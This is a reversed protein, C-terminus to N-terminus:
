KIDLVIKSYTAQQEYQYALNLLNCEDFAKGILQMGIPLGKSDFGCNLSIAPVGAINIPVTCIDTLYMEVPNSAKEGLKFATTPGTPTLLADYTQFLTDFENKILTRVQQAKKYYADYYGSSLAYTGLMIRRKVEPGFGEDRSRKYLELLTSYEKARYGYKIGDYRALNSSAEASSILYYAPLSLDSLDFSVYDVIAGQREYEKAAELVARKVDENIGEGFFEKPLGIRKGKIEKHLDRTYDEHGVPASTSDMPDHGGIINMTHAVDEVYNGIPGIQDLSSAFAVLGYRSVRGYTPKLGVVGCYSAPQRISGGTDSGLAIPSMKAAVCAASGGSSGGPVYELNWPNKTKQFASNETSSGMAFEDMNLKGLMVMDHQKIKTIVTADYPPIFHELMKSACSTTVGQTCINDKISIPIGAYMSLPQNLLRKADVSRAVNLIETEDIRLYAQVKPEVASIRDLYAKALEESSIEKHQLQNSLSLVSSNINIM